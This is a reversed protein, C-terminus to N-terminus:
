SNDDPAVARFELGEHLNVEDADGVAKLHGAGKVEFLVFDQQIAVGQAIAQAKVQAGTTRHDVFVVPMTNVQVTIHKREGRSDGIGIGVHNEM